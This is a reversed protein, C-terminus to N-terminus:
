QVARPKKSVTIAMNSGVQRDGREVLTAGSDVTHTTKPSWEVRPKQDQGRSRTM